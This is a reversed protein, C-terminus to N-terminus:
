SFNRISTKNIIVSYIKETSYFLYYNHTLSIIFYINYIPSFLIRQKNYYFDNRFNWKYNIQLINQLYKVVNWNVLIIYIALFLDITIFYTDSKFLQFLLLNYLLPLNCYHHCYPFHKYNNHLLLVTIFILMYKWMIVCIILWYSSQVKAFHLMVFEYGKKVRKTFKLESNLMNETHPYSKVEKRM